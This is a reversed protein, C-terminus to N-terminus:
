KNAESTVRENGPMVWRYWRPHRPANKEGIPFIRLSCFKTPLEAFTKEATGKWLAKAEAHKMKGLAAKFPEAYDPHRCIFKGLMGAGIKGAKATSRETKGYVDKTAENENHMREEVGIIEVDIDEDPKFKWMWGEALTPKGFKYLGEPTKGIMGEHGQSLLWEYYAVAEPLSSVRKQETVRIDIGPNARVFASVRKKLRELREEYILEPESFDDFAYMTVSPKGERSTVASNSRNYCLPDTPSGLILEGDIGLLEERAFTDHTHRNAFRNLNKTALAPRGRGDRVVFSRLGDWKPSMYMDFKLRHLLDKKVLIGQLYHFGPMPPPLRELIEKAM